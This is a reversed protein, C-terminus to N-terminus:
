GGLRRIAMTEGAFESVTGLRVNDGTHPAQLIQGEGVCIAVHHPASAGAHFYFILDGPQKADWAVTQGFTSSLAGSYHPLKLKGGSAQYAAYLVLGQATSALGAVTPGLAPRGPTPAAAGSTRSGPRRNPPPSSTEQSGPRCRSASPRGAEDGCSDSSTSTAIADLIANPSPSTPPTGTPTPPSRLPRPRWARRFCSGTPSTSCDALRVTARDTPGVTSRSPKTSPTWSTRSAAGGRARDCRFCDSPTTTVATATTRTTRPIPTRAPTPSCGCARSPSRQWSPLSSATADSMRREEAWVSSPRRAPSSPSPRTHGRRRREESATLSAPTRSPSWVRRCASSGAGGPQAAGGTRAARHGARVPHRDGGRRRGQSM